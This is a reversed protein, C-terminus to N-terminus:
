AAQGQGFLARLLGAGGGIEQMRRQEVFEAQRSRYPIM